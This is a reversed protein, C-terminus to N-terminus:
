FCIRVRFLISTMVSDLNDIELRINDVIRNQSYQISDVRFGRPTYTGAFTGSSIVLPVDLDIYYYSTAGKSFKLLMAPHFERAELEAIIGADFVRM